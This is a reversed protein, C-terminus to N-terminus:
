SISLSVKQNKKNKYTANWYVPDLCEQKLDGGGGGWASAYFSQAEQENMEAGGGGRWRCLIRLLHPLM